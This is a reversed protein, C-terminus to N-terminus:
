HNCSILKKRSVLDELVDAIKTGAIYASTLNRGQSKITESLDTKGELYHKVPEPKCNTDLERLERNLINADTDIIELLSKAGKPPRINEPGEYLERLQFDRGTQIHFFSADRMETALAMAKVANEICNCEKRTAM